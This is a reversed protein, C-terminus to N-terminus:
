YAHGRRKPLGLQQSVAEALMAAMARQEWALGNQAAAGGRRERRRRCSEAFAVERATEVLLARNGARFLGALGGGGSRERGFSGIGLVVVAVSVAPSLPQV